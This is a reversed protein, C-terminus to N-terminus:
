TLRATRKISSNKWTTVKYEYNVQPTSYSM